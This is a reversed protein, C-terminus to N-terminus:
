VYFLTVEIQISKDLIFNNTNTNTNTSILLQNYSCPCPISCDYKCRTIKHEIKYPCTSPLKVSQLVIISYGRKSDCVYASDAENATTLLPYPIGVKNKQQTFTSPTYTPSSSHKRHPSPTIPIPTNTQIEIKTYIYM